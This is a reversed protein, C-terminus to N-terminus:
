APNRGAEIFAETLFKPIDNVRRYAFRRGKHKMMTDHDDDSELVDGSHTIWEGVLPVIFEEWEPMNVYDRFREADEIPILKGFFNLRM